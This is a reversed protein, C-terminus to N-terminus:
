GLTIISDAYKLPIDSHAVIVLTAQESIIRLKSLLETESDRDISSTPEDLIILNPEFYLARALGIRQVQGGSLTRGKAGLIVHTNMSEDSLLNELGVFQILQEVRSVNISERPVGLAINEYLSGDIIDTSQPMYSIRAFRSDIGTFEIVGKDPKQIGLMLDVLTSKGSGSLGNIVTISNPYISVSYDDFVFKEAGSYRFSLNSIKIGPANSNSKKLIQKSVISKDRIESMLNFVDFSKGLSTRAVLVSGQIRLLSPLLRFSTAVLLALIGVSKGFSSVFTLYVGTLAGIAIVTVELVYKPVQQVFYTDATAKAASNLHSGFRFKFSRTEGSVYIFKSLKGVEAVLNRMDNIAQSSQLGSQTSWKSLLVHLILFAVAFITIAFLTLLPAIYIIPILLIVLFIVESIALITFGILGFILNVTGDAISTPINVQSNKLFYNPDLNFCNDFIDQSIRKQILALKRMFMRTALFSFISKCLLSVIALTLFFPIANEIDIRLQNILFKEIIVSSGNGRVALLSAASISLIGLLDLFGNLFQAFSLGILSKQESKLLLNWASRFAKTFNM